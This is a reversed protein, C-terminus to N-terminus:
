FELLKELVINSYSYIVIHLIEKTSLIVVGIPYVNLKRVSLIRMNKKEEEFM